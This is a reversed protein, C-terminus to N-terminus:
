VPLYTNTSTSRIDEMGARGDSRAITVSLAHSRLAAADALMTGAWRYLNHEAVSARLARMRTRQDAIPMTLGRELANAVGDIDYPNVILSDRLQQAAGAFRSLVLVGSDDTRAAIFEKAVLNMGDHLSSVYCVDAARYYRNVEEQECHRNLMVVRRVRRGSFRQNIREVEATIRRRLSGYEPISTRSPAAVQLLAVDDTEPRMFLQEVALLREEFGKTYDLRDVCVILRDTSRLGFQTRVSCRVDDLRSDDVSRLEPWEISIPYTRVLTSEGARTVSLRDIRADTTREVLEMFNRGHAATQFGVVSNGLLGDIIADQYPCTAFQEPHPWPIHWFTLITAGPLRCRLMRPVLALHYDQVLVVPADSDAEAAVADAFRENVAQYMQWDTRRFTPRVHALHCLPWLAQNSFGDYYGRVEEDSLWVRRLTYPRGGSKIAVRGFADAVHRDASGSGHAVWVGGCARVVPELATVLGGAPRRAVITGNSSREHICPERNAVVIIRQDRFSGHMMRRLREITWPKSSAEDPIGRLPLRDSVGARQGADARRGVSTRILQLAAATVGAGVAMSESALRWVAHDADLWSFFNSTVAVARV